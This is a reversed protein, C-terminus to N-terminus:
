TEDASVEKTIISYDFNDPNYNQPFLILDNCKTDISYYASLLHINLQPFKILNNEEGPIFINFNENLYNIFEEVNVNVKKLFDINFEICGAFTHCRKLIDKMGELVKWENGEVDIKFIVIQNEISKLKFLDDIKISGIKKKIQERHELQYISSNGSREKDVFFDQSFLNQDSALKYIIKMQDKNLHNKLSQEIYPKLEKNPEVGYILADRCYNASFLIEGYNLGIDLIINPELKEVIRRWFNVVRPQTIGNHLSLGLGKKEKDNVFFSNHNDSFIIEKMM